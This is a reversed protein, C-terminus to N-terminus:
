IDNIKTQGNDLIGLLIGFHVINDKEYMVFPTNDEVCEMKYTNQRLQRKTWKSLRSLGSLTIQCIM